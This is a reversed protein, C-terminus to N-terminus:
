EKSASKRSFVVRGFDRPVHFAPRDTKSPSWQSHQPNTKGGLRNLNLHWVDGAESEWEGSSDPGRHAIRALARARM